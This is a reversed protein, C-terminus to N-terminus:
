PGPVCPSLRLLVECGLALAAGTRGRSGVM